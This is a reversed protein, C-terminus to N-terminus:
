KCLYWIELAIIICLILITLLPSRDQYGHNQSATTVASNIEPFMNEIQRGSSEVQRQSVNAFRSIFNMQTKSHCQGSVMNYADNYLAMNSQKFRQMWMPLQAGPQITGPIIPYPTPPSNVRAPGGEARNIAGVGGHYHRGGSTSYQNTWQEEPEWNGTDPNVHWDSSGTAFPAGTSIGHHWEHQYPAGVVNGTRWEDYYQSYYGQGEPLQHSHWLDQEPNVIKHAHGTHNVNHVHGGAQYRRVNGGRRYNATNRRPMGGGGPNVGGEMCVGPPNQCHQGPQCDTHYTCQGWGTGSGGVHSNGQPVSAGHSTRNIKVRNKQGPIAGTVARYRDSKKM